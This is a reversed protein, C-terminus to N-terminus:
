CWGCVALQNVSVLPLAAAYVVFVCAFEPQRVHNFGDMEEYNARETVLHVTFSWLRQRLCM